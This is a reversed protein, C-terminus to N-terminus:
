LTQDTVKFPRFAISGEVVKGDFYYRLLRHHISRCHYEIKTVSFRSAIHRPNHAKHHEVVEISKTRYFSM